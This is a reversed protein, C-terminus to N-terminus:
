RPFDSELPTALLLLCKADSSLRYGFKRGREKGKRRRWAPPAWWWSRLRPRPGGCGRRPRARRPRPRGAGAGPGLAGHGLEGPGLAGLDLEGPGLDARARAPASRASTSSAPASTQRGGAGLDATRGRRAGPRLRPEAPRSSQRGRARAGGPAARGAALALEKGASRSSRAAPAAGDPALEAPRSRRPLHTQRNSFALKPHGRRKVTRSGFWQIPRRATPSLRLKSSM